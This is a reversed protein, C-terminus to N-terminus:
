FQWVNGKKDTWTHKYNVKKNKQQEREDIVKNISSEILEIDIKNEIITINDQKIDIQELRKREILEEVAKETEKQYNEMLIKASVYKNFEEEKDKVRQLCKSMRARRMKETHKSRSEKKEEPTKLIRTRPRGVKKKIIINNNESLSINNFAEIPTSEIPVEESENSDSAPLELDCIYDSLDCGPSRTASNPVYNKSNNQDNEM